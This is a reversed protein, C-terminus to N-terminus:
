NRCGRDGELWGLQLSLFRSSIYSQYMRYVHRYPQCILSCRNEGVLRVANQHSQYSTFCDYFFIKVKLM